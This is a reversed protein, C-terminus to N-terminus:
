FYFLISIFIEISAVTDSDLRRLNQRSKRRYKLINHHFDLCFRLLNPLSETADISIKMEM